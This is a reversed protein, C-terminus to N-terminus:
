AALLALYGGYCALLCAGERRALRFGTFSFLVLLLSLAVLGLGEPGFLNWSLKLPGLQASVGLIALVNFINSGLLNGLIFDSDGRRAAVLCSSLEPLSTGLAVVTLGILHEGVGLHRALTVAGDVLLDAGLALLAVAGAVAALAPLLGPRTTADVAVPETGKLTFLTYTGLLALLLLGILPTIEGFSLLAVLILSTLVLLPLDRRFARRDVAIPRLLVALGLILGVNAVNSGLVNGMVLDGSGRLTASLAAALEPASTGFAVVTLSVVLPSLGLRRALSTSGGVLVEGGGYLLALGAVIKMWIM